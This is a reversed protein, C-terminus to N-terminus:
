LREKIYNELPKLGYQRSWGAFDKIDEKLLYDPTNIHKFGLLKTIENSAKKGAIDSDYALYQITSNDRIYNLNEENFCILSENQVSCVQPYVKRIVMRDKRSKAIIIKEANKIDALGEMASNPINNPFWKDKKDAFPRYIKWKEGQLYAFKLEYPNTSLLKRNLYIKSIGYINERKLDEIDQHYESWYQLEEKLFKRTVVQIFVPKKTIKPQEYNIIEKKYDKKKGTYGLGFTQDILKLADYLSPLNYLQQVFDFCDGRFRMDGFDIHSLEFSDGGIIFSPDTDKRFPSPFKHNLSFRTPCFQRYIDYPSIHELVKQMTLLERKVGTIM